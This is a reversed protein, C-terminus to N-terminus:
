RFMALCLNLTVFIFYEIISVFGLNIYFCTMYFCFECIEGYNLMFCRLTDFNM